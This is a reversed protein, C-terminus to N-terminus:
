KVAGACRLKVDTQIVTATATASDSEYVIRYFTAKKVKMKVRKVQPKRNTGFGWHAFDAHTFTSLGCSVLKKPYDGRRNTEVTVELRAGTEPQMAVFLAPSYKLLWDRDFDMAGTAAYCRINAGDDNRYAGSFHLVRGDDGFGYVDTEVDVLHNFPLGEYSYWTDNAYNHILARGDGLLFWYECEGKINATRIGSINASRLTAGVRDSIRKANNETAAVYGAVGSSRWQYVGGVDLTLPDNEMLRVQGAAENGFQRNVPQVYFAPTSGGGLDLTGYSVSYASNPKFALMRSYQKVLATIPTNKEGVNVEYLAPFYEGCPEGTEYPIGTYIARSSGDGYLFMRTDTAGNYLEAFRMKTVEDSYDDGAFYNIQMTNTGATPAGSTFTVTGNAGDASYNSPDVRSGNEYVTVWSVPKEPLTYVTSTGDPSFLVRRENTLRNLGELLTGSGAPTTAYQIIPVYPVVDEFDSNEAGDWSMYEYGNLLYVKDAFGVFSTPKAICRGVVVASPTTAEVDVDLVYGAFSVLTHLKGGVSGRWVGYVRANPDTLDYTGGADSIADALSLVAKCGPRTKLHKDRTIRFNRLETFEGTKLATMGDPNENLGLFQEISLVRDSNKVKVQAM